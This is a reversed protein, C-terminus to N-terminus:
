KEGEYYKWYATISCGHVKYQDPMCQPPEEFTGAPIGAPSRSLVDKCKTITLHTKKYRKNYEDGLAIMHYYLWLYLHHHQRCWITSPHNSHAKKYPIYYSTHALLKTYHHYATCLM